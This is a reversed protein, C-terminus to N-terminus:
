TLVEWENRGILIQPTCDDNTQMTWRNVRLRGRRLDEIPGLTVELAATQLTDTLLWADTVRGLALGSADSVRRPADIIARPLRVPASTVIVCVEGLVSIGDRVIWRASGLGRRVVLGALQKGDPSLVAREVHGVQREGRIVPLGMVRTLRLECTM